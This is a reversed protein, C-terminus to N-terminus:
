LWEKMLKKIMAQYPINTTKCKLKFAELLCEPIRISILKSKLEVNEHMLRYEELFQAVETPTLRKSNELAEDSFIQLTKM